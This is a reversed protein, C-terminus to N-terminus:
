GVLPGAAHPSLVPICARFMKIFKIGFRPRRSFGPGVQLEATTLWFSEMVSYPQWIRKTFIGAMKDLTVFKPQMRLCM